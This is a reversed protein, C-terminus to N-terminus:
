EGAWNICLNPINNANLIALKCSRMSQGQWKSFNLLANDPELRKSLHERWNVCYPEQALFRYLEQKKFCYALKEGHFWIEYGTRNASPRLDYGDIQEFLQKLDTKVEFDLGTKTNAGGVGGIIM